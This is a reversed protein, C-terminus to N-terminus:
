IAEMGQDAFPENSTEALGRFWWALAPQWDVSIVDGVDFRVDIYAPVLRRLEPM